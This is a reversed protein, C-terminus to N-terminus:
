AKGGKVPQPYEDPLDILVVMVPKGNVMRRVRRLSLATLEALFEPRTAKRKIARIRRLEALYCSRSAILVTVSM